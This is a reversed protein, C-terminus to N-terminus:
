RGRSPGRKGGPEDGATGPAPPDPAVYPAFYGTRTRVRAGKVDPRTLRVQVRRWAGDTRPDDSAYGITYRASIEEFVRDYMTELEKLTSPFFAQGGSLGALHQLRQRLELARSGTQQLFGIPYIAVDSAKVLDLLEPYRMSSRTDIGDTYIVLVKQGTQRSAGDLYVGLADYFATWGDPKRSRIREVLRPFDSPLFKTVRVEEDFGVLTYDEARDMRQLFKIAGSKALNVDETMSGSYDFLLGARLPLPDDGEELGRAFYTIRQPRGEEVIEFDDRTLGTIPTGRRDVVTVAFHVLDVGSRFVPQAAAEAPGGPCWSLVFALALAGRLVPVEV